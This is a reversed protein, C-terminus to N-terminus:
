FFKLGLNFISATLEARMSLQVRATCVKGKVAGSVRDEYFLSCLTPGLSSGQINIKQLLQKQEDQLLVRSNSPWTGEDDAFMEYLGRDSGPVTTRVYERESRISDRVRRQARSKGVGKDAILCTYLTPRVQVGDAILGGLGCYMTLLAAYGWGLPVQLTRAKEALWGYLASEPIAHMSIEFNVPASPTTAIRRFGPCTELAALVPKPDISGDVVRNAALIQEDSPPLRQMGDTGRDTLLGDYVPDIGPRQLILLGNILLPGNIPSVPATSM